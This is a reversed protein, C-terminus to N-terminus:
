GRDCAKRIGSLVENACRSKKPRASSDRSIFSWCSVFGGCGFVVPRLQSSVAAGVGYVSFIPCVRGLRGNWRDRCSRWRFQAPVYGFGDYVLKRVMGSAGGDGPGFHWGRVVPLHGPERPLYAFHPV